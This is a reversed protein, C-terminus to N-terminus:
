KESPPRRPFPGRSPRRNNDGPGPRRGGRSRRSTAQPIYGGTGDSLQSLISATRTAIFVTLLPKQQMRNRGNTRDSSRLAPPQSDKGDATEVYNTKFRAFDTNSDKSVAESITNKIRSLRSRLLEAKFPGALVAGLQRRYELRASSVKMVRSLLKVNDAYPQAISLNMQETASGASRHGAFTSNVDWPLWRFRGDSRPLYIYYNHGRLLFSDLHSLVAHLATFKMLQSVDIYSDIKEAFEKDGSENVFRTFDMLRNEFEPSTETKPVYTSRYDEWSKGLYPFANSREPKLLLGKGTGFRGELYANDVQEVMTYLGLYEKEKNDGVQLYVRAFATRCYPLGMDAFMQFALTERAQSPDLINNNLNLKTLGLFKQSAVVRNFDIKFSKKKTASASSYSSNGKYRLGVKLPAHGAISVLAEAYPFERDFGRGGTPPLSLYAKGSVRIDVDWIKTYGFLETPTAPIKDAAPATRNFLLLVVLALSCISVGSLRFLKNM